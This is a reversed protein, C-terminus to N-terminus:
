SNACMCAFTFSTELHKVLFNRVQQAVKRINADQLELCVALLIAARTTQFMDVVMKAVVERNVQPASPSKIVSILEQYHRKTDTLLVTITGERAHQHSDSPRLFLFPVSELFPRSSSSFFDFVQLVIDRQHPKIMGRLSKVCAEMAYSHSDFMGRFLTEITPIHGVPALRGLTAAACARVEGREHMTLRRPNQDLNENSSLFM